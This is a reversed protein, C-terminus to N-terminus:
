NRRVLPRGYKNTRVKEVTVVTPPTTTTPTVGPAPPPPSGAPPPPTGGTPPTQNNEGPVPPTGSGGPVYTVKVGADRGAKRSGRQAAKEASKADGGEKGDVAGESAGTAAAAIFDEVDEDGAAAIAASVAIFSLKSIASNSSGLKTVSAAVDTASDVDTILKTLAEQLAAEDEDSASGDNVKAILAIVDAGLDAAQASPTVMLFGFVAVVAALALKM